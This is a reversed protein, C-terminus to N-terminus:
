SGGRMRKLAKAVDCYESRLAWLKEYNREAEKRESAECALLQEMKWELARRTYPLLNRSKWLLSTEPTLVELSYYLVLGAQKQITDLMEWLIKHHTELKRLETACQVIKDQTTM